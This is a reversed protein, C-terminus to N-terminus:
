GLWVSKLLEDNMIRMGFHCYKKEDIENIRDFDFQHFKYGYVNKVVSRNRLGCDVWVSNSKLLIKGLQKNKKFRDLKFIDHGSTSIRNLVYCDLQYKFKYTHVQYFTDWSYLNNMKIFHEILRRIQLDKVNSLDRVYISKGGYENKNIYFGM